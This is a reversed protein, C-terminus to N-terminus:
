WRELYSIRTELRKYIKWSANENSRGKRTFVASFNNKM